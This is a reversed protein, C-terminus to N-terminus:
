RVLCIQFISPHYSITGQIFTVNFLRSICIAVRFKTAFPAVINCQVHINLILIFCCLGTLMWYRYVIFRCRYCRFVWSCTKVYFCLQNPLYIYITGISNFSLIFKKYSLRNRISLVRGHHHNMYFKTAESDTLIVESRYKDKVMKCCSILIITPQVRHFAADNLARNYQIAMEDWLRVRVKLRCLFDHM